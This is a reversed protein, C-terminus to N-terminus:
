YAGKATLVAPITKFMIKIDTWIGREEIYRTDLKVMGDFDITSRGSIQWYCTLGGVVELRRLAAEDYNEVERPLPPRPGVFSMNGKLINFMQPIEDLSTRRLFRGIKTIRPDNEMKFLEGSTENLDKIDEFMDDANVHMSRFKYFRFEKGGKGVRNSIYFVPGGDSIKIAIAIILYVWFFVLIFVLAGIVDFVRKVANYVPKGEAIKVTKGAVDASNNVSMIEGNDVTVPTFKRKTGCGVREGYLVTDM